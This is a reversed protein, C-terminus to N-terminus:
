LLDFGFLKGIGDQAHTEGRINILSMNYYFLLFRNETLENKILNHFKVFCVVKVININYFRM